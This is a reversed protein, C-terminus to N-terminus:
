SAQSHLLPLRIGLYRNLHARSVSHHTGDISRKLQSFFNEAKNTSVGGRVYEGINHQVTQHSQFERGISWYWRGEDTMLRSNGMDVRESIVKRLTHSTVDTVATTHSEGTEANILCLVPQKDTHQNPRQSGPGLQEPEPEPGKHQNEPDGGIWAEDSVITGVMMHPARNRMAERIKQTM